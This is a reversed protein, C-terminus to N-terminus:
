NLFRLLTSRIGCAGQLSDGVTILLLVDPVPVSLPPPPTSPSPPPLLSASRLASPRLPCPWPRFCLLCRAVAPQEPCPVSLTRKDICKTWEHICKTWEHIRKTWEHICKTWEHICKTWEHILNQLSCQTSTWKYM